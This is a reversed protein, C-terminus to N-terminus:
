GLEQVRVSLHSDLTLMIMATGAWVTLETMVLGDVTVRRAGEVLMPEPLVLHNIEILSGGDARVNGAKTFHSNARETIEMTGM